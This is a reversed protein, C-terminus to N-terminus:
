VAMLAKDWNSARLFKRGGPATPWIRQLSVREVTHCANPKIPHEPKLVVSDLVTQLSMVVLLAPITVAWSPGRKSRRLVLWGVVITPAEVLFDLRPTAYFNLGALEGGPWLLKNMTFYDAALHLPIVVAFAVTLAVSDTVLLVLGGVVAAELVIAPITHSYLGFPSCIGALSYFVDMIDPVVAAACLLCFALAGRPDRQTARVMSAVGLHGFIV